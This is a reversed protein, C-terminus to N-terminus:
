RELSAILAQFPGNPHHQRNPVLIVFQDASALEDLLRRVGSATPGIVARWRDCPEPGVWFWEPDTFRCPKPLGGAVSTVEYRDMGSM